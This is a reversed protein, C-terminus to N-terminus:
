LGYFTRPNDYTIKRVASQPIEGRDAREQLLRPFELEMSADAHTFDSGMLMNDEGIFRLLYPLDEDVQVTVYVNNRKLMDGEVDAAQLGDDLRGIRRRLDYLVYPLWTAGAEIVGWRLAPFKAPIKHLLLSHCAHVVPIGIRIFRSYSFERAPPFDPIGSGVHFCVPMNLREAEEYLPFFYEDNPWKGAERDGKKLLGCAGNDKAFRLEQIGQEIDMTLPLCVWRLRGNALSCRDALWRNYSRRIAVEVEPRETAQVLFLTPYIVQVETGMKDMAEVRAPVDLLERMEVTTGSRKDDRIFRPQRHGDVMWYRTPRRNPDPNPPYATVPKFEREDERLFEWTDETEDIHTDADIIVM